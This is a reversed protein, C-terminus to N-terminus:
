STGGREKRGFFLGHVMGMSYAWAGLWDLILWGVAHVPDGTVSLAKRLWRLKGRMFVYGFLLVALPLIVPQLISFALFVILGAYIVLFSPFTSMSYKKRFQVVGAGGQFRRKLFSLLREPELHEWTAEPDFVIKYGLSRVRIGVDVDVGHQLTRDYLGIKELVSKRYVWGTFPKYDAFNVRREVDKCNTIFNGRNLVRYPGIVGGVSLDEFHKIASELYHPNYIADSECQAIFEGQAAVIGVNRAHGEGGHLTNILRVPYRGAVEGTNDTSGDNVVIIEKGPYTQALLSELCMAITRSGNYVPVVASVLNLKETM